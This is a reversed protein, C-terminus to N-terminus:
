AFGPAFIIVNFQPHTNLTPNKKNNWYIPGKPKILLSGVQHSGASVDTERRPEM